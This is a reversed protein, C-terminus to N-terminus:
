FKILEGQPAAYDDFYYRFSVSGPREALTEIQWVACIQEHFGSTSPTESAILGVLYNIFVGLPKFAHLGRDFTCRKQFAKAM